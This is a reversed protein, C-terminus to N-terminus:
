LTLMKYKAATQQHANDLQRASTKILYRGATALRWHNGSVGLVREIRCGAVLSGAGLMKPGGGEPDAAAEATLNSLAQAYRIL